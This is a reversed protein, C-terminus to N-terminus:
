TDGMIIRPFKVPGSPDTYIFIERDSEEFDNIPLYDANWEDKTKIDHLTVVKPSADGYGEVWEVLFKINKDQDM